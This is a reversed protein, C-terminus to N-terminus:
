LYDSVVLHFNKVQKQIDDPLMKDCFVDDFASIHCLNSYCNKNIKTSDLLLVKRRSQQLIAARIDNEFASNDTAYGNESLGHCSIFCVDANFTKITDIATQGIFSYSKRYSQGGSSYFKLETQALRLLTEIGSTIIIADKYDKLFQVTETVTSSADLMVVSDAKLCEKVAQRAISKKQEMATQKRNIFSIETDARKSISLARGHSRIILGAEELARLNRRVTSESAYFLKMLTQIDVSQKENIITLMQNLKDNKM